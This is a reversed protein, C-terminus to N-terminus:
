SGGRCCAARVSPDCGFLPFMSRWDAQTGGSHLGLEATTLLILWKGIARGLRAKNRATTSALPTAM